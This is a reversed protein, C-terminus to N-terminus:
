VLREFNLSLVRRTAETVKVREDIRWGVVWIIQQPSCVLPVRGRWQRPIKADVMFDQLKKPQELGLPQFRDGPRRARAMLESGARDLDLYAKFGDPQRPDFSESPVVKARVQWGPLRTEGPVLLPFEGELTPFPCLSTSDRAILCRGYETTLVLGQPLSLRKGAPKAIMARMAEIHAAEIDRLNGLLRRVVARLLRRQLSPPLRSLRGSDLIITGGEEIVIEGWIRFVEEELFSLDDALIRTTHLLAKDISPNYSRLLPLLEHRIRNRLRSLSLNSPDSRPMLKHFQCYAETEERRVGLLPRVILLSGRQTAPSMGRLGGSGRILHMLVTEVQDDATHGVAVRSAGVSTAVEALFAYRVERAAEELSCRKEKRYGEADRRGITASVGMQHALNAVYRADAESDDGRLQHDLHAVWLKIELEKQLSALIHLLCVSDPGGSVGLLLTDPGSVLDHDRIFGRVRRELPEKKGVENM